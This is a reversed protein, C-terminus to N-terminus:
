KIRRLSPRLGARVASAWNDIRDLLGDLAAADDSDPAYTDVVRQPSLALLANCSAIGRALSLLFRDDTSDLRADLQADLDATQAQWDEVSLVEGTGRQAVFEETTTAIKVYDPAAPTSQTGPAAGSSGEPTQPRLPQTSAYRKGDQGVVERDPACSQEGSALDNRVTGQSIGLAKAASRTSLGAEALSQVLGARVERPVRLRAGEFEADCMEDWGAYGLAIWARGLYATAIREGVDTIDARISDVLARAETSDLDRDIAEVTM